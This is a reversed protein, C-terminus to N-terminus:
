VWVKLSLTLESFGNFWVGFGGGLAGYLLYFVPGIGIFPSLDVYKQPGPLVVGSLGQLGKLFGANTQASLSSCSPIM